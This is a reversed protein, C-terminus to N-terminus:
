KFLLLRETLIRNYEKMVILQKVLLAKHDLEIDSHNSNSLFLELKSIKELLEQQEVIVKEKYSMEM